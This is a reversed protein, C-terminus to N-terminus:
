KKTTRRASTPKKTVPTEPILTKIFKKIEETIESSDVNIKCPVEKITEPKCLDKEPQNYAEILKNALEQKIKKMINAIEDSNTMYKTTNIIEEVRLIKHGLELINNIKNIVM